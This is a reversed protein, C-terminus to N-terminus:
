SYTLGNIATRDKIYYEFTNYVRWKFKKDNSQEDIFFTQFDLKDDFSVTFMFVTGFLSMRLM